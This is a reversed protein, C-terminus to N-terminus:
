WYGQVREKRALAIGRDATSSPTVTSPFVDIRADIVASIPGSRVLVGRCVLVPCKQVPNSRKVLFFLRTDRVDEM